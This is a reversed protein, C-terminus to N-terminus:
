IGKNSETRFNYHGTEEPMFRIKWTFNGDFFGNIKKTTSGITFWATLTVDEFPKKFEKKTILEVEFVDWKEVTDRKIMPNSAPISKVAGTQNGYSASCFVTWSVILLIIRKRMIEYKIKASNM